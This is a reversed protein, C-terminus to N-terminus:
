EETEDLPEAAANLADLIAQDAISERDSKLYLRLAIVRNEEYAYVLRAGGSKGRSGTPLRAKYILRGGLRALRHHTPAPGDEAVQELAELAGAEVRTHRRVIRRLDRHFDESLEVARRAM